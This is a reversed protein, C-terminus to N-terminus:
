HYQRALWGYLQLARVSCARHRTSTLDLSDSSVVGIYSGAPPALKCCCRICTGSISGTGCAGSGSCTCVGSGAPEERFLFLSSFASRIPSHEPDPMQCELSRALASVYAFTASQRGSFFVLPLIRVGRDTGIGTMSNIAMVTDLLRSAVRSGRDFKQFRALPTASGSGICL